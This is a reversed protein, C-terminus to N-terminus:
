PWMYIAFKLFAMGVMISGISGMCFIWSIEGGTVLSLFDTLLILSGFGTFVVGGIGLGISVGQKCTDNYYKNSVNNNSCALSTIFGLSLIIRKIKYTM